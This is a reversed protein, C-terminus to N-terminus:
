NHNKCHVGGSSLKCKCSSETIVFCAAKTGWGQMIVSRLLINKLSSWQDLDACTRAKKSYTNCTCSFIIMFCSSNQDTFSQVTFSKSINTQLSDDSRVSKMSVSSRSVKRRWSRSCVETLTLAAYHAHLLPKTNNWATATLSSPCQENEFPITIVTNPDNTAAEPLGWPNLVECTQKDRNGSKDICAPASPNHRESEYPNLDREQVERQFSLLTIVSVRKLTIVDKSSGCLFFVSNPKAQPFTM